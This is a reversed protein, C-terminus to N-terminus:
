LKKEIKEFLDPMELAPNLCFGEDEESFTETLYSKHVTREISVDCFTLIDKQCEKDFMKFLDGVIIQYTQHKSSYKYVALNEILARMMGPSYFVPYNTEVGDIDIKTIYEDENFTRCYNNLIKLGTQTIEDLKEPNFVSIDIGNKEIYEDILSMEYDDKIFMFYVDGKM